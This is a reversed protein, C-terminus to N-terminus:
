WVEGGAPSGWDLEEAVWDEPIRKVLDDLAVRGRVRRAPTLVVLGGEVAVDVDDGVALGAQALVDRSLRVGQSNGWRQIRTM